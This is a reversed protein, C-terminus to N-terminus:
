NLILSGLFRTFTGDQTEFIGWHQKHFLELTLTVSTIARVDCGKWTSRRDYPGKAGRKASLGFTNCILVGGVGCGGVM